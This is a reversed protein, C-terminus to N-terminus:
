WFNHDTMFVCLYHANRVDYVKGYDSRNKDSAIASDLFETHTKTGDLYPLLYDIAPRIINRLSPDPVWRMETIIKQYRLTTQRYGQELLVIINLIAFLTYIHYTISDRHQTDILKGFDPSKRDYDIISEQIYMKTENRLNVIMDPNRFVNVVMKAM